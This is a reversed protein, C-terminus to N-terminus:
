ALEGVVAAVAAALRDPPLLRRAAGLRQAARPMGFVVSSAEDQAFTQAGARRMALLGHAGDDGMGTLTVGVGAGRAHAALSHFLEDVSPRHVQPPDPDLVLRGDRGLKLHVRGPAVYVCGPEPHAGDAAAAVPAPVEGDLWAAFGDAFSPHIHQVVLIPAALAPLARLLASIAAPGGTSAGIGVVAVGAPGRVPAAHREPPRRRSVVPVAAVTRVHRRLTRETGEDWRVPKPLADVAGAALATVAHPAGAGDIVASLVLIPTPTDAMIRTIADGGGAGPLDLDMTVVDPRHHAVASVAADADSVEAVVAIDGDAQLVRALHARQTPSDEVLVLRVTATV